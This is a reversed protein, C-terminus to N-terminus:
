ELDMKLTISYDNFGLLRYFELTRDNGIAAVVNIRAVKSNKCFEIFHETLAQGIGKGRFEEAIHMSTLEALPTATSAPHGSGIAGLLYGVIQKDTEAVILRSNENMAYELLRSRAADSEVWSAKWKPDYTLHFKLQESYLHLISSFDSEMGDRICIKSMFGKKVTSLRLSSECSLAVDSFNKEGKDSM